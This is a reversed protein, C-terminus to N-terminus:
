AAVDVERKTKEYGRDEGDRDSRLAFEVTM